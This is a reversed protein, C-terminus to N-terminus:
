ASEVMIAAGADSTTASTAASLRRLDGALLPELVAAAVIEGVRSAGAPTFHLFDYFTALSAELSPMLNVQEIGLVRAVRAVRRDVSQLLTRVAHHSYYIRSDTGSSLPGRCFNWMVSEEASTLPRGFWPQRVVMVRRARSQATGISRRLNMEFNTLMPTADPLQTVLGVAQQRRRRLQALKGGFDERTRVPRAIRRWLLGGLSRLAFRGSRWEFRTQPDEGFREASEPQRVMRSPTGQELWDVADSAGVMLILLDLKGYRPLIHELIQCVAAASTLSRGVNGVHVRKAGLASLAEPQNLERQIVAPWASEQDLLGCEAASGGVVLVRYLGDRNKPLPDGREGEENVEFRIERDMSPLVKPDLKMRMRAWRRHVYFNRRRLWMRAMVEAAIVVALLAASLAPITGM